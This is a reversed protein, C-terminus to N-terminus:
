LSCAPTLQSWGTSILPINESEIDKLKRQKQM